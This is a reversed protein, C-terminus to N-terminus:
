DYGYGDDFYPDDDKYMKKIKDTTRKSMKKCRGWMCCTTVFIIIAAVVSSAIIITTIMSEKSQLAKFDIYEIHGQQTSWDLGVRGLEPGNTIYESLSMLLHLEELGSAKMLTVGVINETAEGSSKGTQQDGDLVMEPIAMDGNPLPQPLLRGPTYWMNGKKVRMDSKQGISGDELLHLYGGDSKGSNAGDMPQLGIASTPYSSYSVKRVKNKACYRDIVNWQEAPLSSVWEDTEKNVQYALSADSLYVAFYLPSGISNYLRFTKNIMTNVEDYPILNDDLLYRLYQATNGKPNSTLFLAKMEAMPLIEQVVLRRMLVLKSCWKVGYFHRKVMNTTNENVRESMEVEVHTLEDKGCSYQEGAPITGTRHTQGGEGVICWVGFTTQKIVQQTNHDTISAIEWGEPLMISRNQCTLQSFENGVGTMVAYEYGSNHLVSGTIPPRWNWSSALSGEVKQKIVIRRSCEVPYHFPQKPDYGLYPLKDFTKNGLMNDGCIRGDAYYSKGNATIYCITGFKHASGGLVIKLGNDWDALEWGAPVQYYGKQCENETDNSAINDITAYRTGNFLIFETIENAEKIRVLDDSAKGGEKEMLIASTCKESQFYDVGQIEHWELQGWKIIKDIDIKPDKKKSVPYTSGDEMV